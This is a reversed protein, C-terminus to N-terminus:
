FYIKVHIENESELNPKIVVINKIWAGDPTAPESPV